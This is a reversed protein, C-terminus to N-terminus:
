NKQIKYTLIHLHTVYWTDKSNFEPRKEKIKSCLNWETYTFFFLIILYYICKFIHKIHYTHNQWKTHTMTKTHIFYMSSVWVCVCVRVFARVCVCRWSCHCACVFVRLCTRVCACACVCVRVCVCVRLHVRVCM